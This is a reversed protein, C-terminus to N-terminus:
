QPPTKPANTQKADKVVKCGTVAADELIVRSGVPHSPSEELETEDLEPEVPREAPHCNEINQFWESDLIKGAQWRLRPEPELLHEIVDAIYEPWGLTLHAAQEIALLNIHMDPPPLLPPLLTTPSTHLHGQTRKAHEELIKERKYLFGDWVPDGESAEYWTYRGLRMCMYVIGCAWIDVKRADFTEKTFEEPAIFPGSGRISVSTRVKKEWPMRFVESNGFDAIKLCGDSTLLLNEPKIDRHVVGMSHLFAVGNILQAFFCSSEMEGLTDASAILSHLDGGACYEMVESYTDNHLQLLDLTQIVNIHKLSSAICFESTLRRMYAKQSEGHNNKFEKIAYVTGQPQGPQKKMSIRVTGFAGKGVVQQLEGYKEVFDAMADHHHHHHHHHKSGGKGFPPQHHEASPTGYKENLLSMPHELAEPHLHLHHRGGGNAHHDDKKGDLFDRIKKVQSALFQHRRPACLHHRHGGQPLREFRHRIEGTGSGTSSPVTEISSAISHSSPSGSAHGPRKPPVVIDTVSPMEALARRQGRM